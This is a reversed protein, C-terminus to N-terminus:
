GGLQFNIYEIEERNKTNHRMVVTCVIWAVMGFLVLLIVVFLTGSKKVKQINPIKYSSYM